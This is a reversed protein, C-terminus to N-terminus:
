SASWVGTAAARAAYDAFDRAPRGLARQVGDVVYANRGDLTTAFLEVLFDAVPPPLGADLAGRHFDEPSVRVLQVPRGAADAITAVAEEFGLLRPGTVEYIAGGHGDGTLAAFAVDAIDDVDVFPERVTGVPLAVVGARVMDTLVGEDFNQAFWSARVVTATLPGDLVLRECAQAGPEGRGSLLVLRKVGHAACLDLLHAIDGQAQPVALDPQYTVYVQEVGDLAGSWTERRTWDFAPATSRSARRVPWGATELRDAVRRGTKGAAGIILTLPLSRM